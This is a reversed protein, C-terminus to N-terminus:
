FLDDDRERHKGKGKFDKKGKGDKHPKKNSPGQSRGNGSRGNSSGAGAFTDLRMQDQAKAAAARSTDELAAITTPTPGLWGLLGPLPCLPTPHDISPCIHCRFTRQLRAMGYRTTMIRIKGFLRRLQSWHDRNNTSPTVHVRWSVTNTDNIILAIGQVTISALFIEWAQGASVQPGFADRHTQVFQAIENDAEIATRILNQVVDAGAAFGMVPMNYPFAFLTTRTSSLVRQNVIAQALHDPIDAVLWLIPSTGNGATPPTGLTFSTPDINAFDGVAEHILGHTKMVAGNGGSVVLFFKPQAVEEYMRILDAPIGHLLQEPSYVIAPFGGAPTPTYSSRPPLGDATLWMPPLVPATAAPPAALVLVGAPAPVLAPAAAPVATNATAVAATPATAVATVPTSAVATIPASAVTTVPATIPIIAAPMVIPVAAPTAAPTIGPTVITAAAPTATPANTPATTTPVTPIATSAAIASTTPAPTAIVAAFPAPASEGATNSRLRKSPSGTGAAPRRSSSAGTTAHGLMAPIDLSAATAQAIDAALSPDDNDSTPTTVVAPAKLRTLPSPPIPRPLMGAKTAKGKGKNAKTAKTRPKAVAASALVVLPPFKDRSIEVVSAPSSPRATQPTPTTNHSDMPVPTSDSEWGYADATQSPAPLPTTRNDNFDDYYMDSNESPTPSSTRASNKRTIAM